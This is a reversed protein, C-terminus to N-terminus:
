IRDIQRQGKCLCATGCVKSIFVFDQLKTNGIPIKWPQDAYMRVLPRPARSSPSIGQKSTCTKRDLQKLKLVDMIAIRDLLPQAHQDIPNAHSGKGQARRTQILHSKQTLHRAPVGYKQSEHTGPNHSYPPRQERNM